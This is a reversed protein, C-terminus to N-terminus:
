ELHFSQYRSRPNNCHNARKTWQTQMANSDITRTPNSYNSTYMGSLSFFHAGGPRAIVLMFLSLSFFSHVLHVSICLLHIQNANPSHSKKEKRKLHFLGFLIFLSPFFIVDRITTSCLPCASTFTLLLCVNESYCRCCRLYTAFVQFLKGSM